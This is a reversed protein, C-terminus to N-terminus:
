HARETRMFTSRTASRSSFAASGASMRGGHIHSLV